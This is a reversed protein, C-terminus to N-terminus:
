SNGGCSPGCSCNCSCNCSCGCTCSCPCPCECACSCACDCSCSCNCACRNLGNNCIDCVTTKFKAKNYSTRIANIRAASILDDKEAPAFYGDIFGNLKTQIEKYYKAYIIWDKQVQTASGASGQRVSDGVNEAANLKTILSNWNAATLVDKLFDENGPHTAYGHVERWPFAGVNPHSTILQYGVQCITQCTANCTNCGHCGGHNRDACSDGDHCSDCHPSAPISM